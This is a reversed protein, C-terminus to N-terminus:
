FIFAIEGCSQNTCSKRGIWAEDSPNMAWFTNISFIPLYGTLQLGRHQKCEAGPLALKEKQNL